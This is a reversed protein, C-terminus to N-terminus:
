RTEEVSSPAHQETVVVFCLGQMAPPFRSPEPLLAMCLHSGPTLGTSVNPAEVPGKHFHLNSPGVQVQKIVSKAPPPPLHRPIQMKLDRPHNHYAAVNPFRLVLVNKYGTSMSPRHPLWWFAKPGPVLCTPSAESLFDSFSSIAKWIISSKM